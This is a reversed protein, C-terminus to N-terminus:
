NFKEIELYNQDVISLLDCNLFDQCKLLVNLVPMCLVDRNQLFVVVLQQSIQVFQRKIVVYSFLASVSSMMTRSMEQKRTTVLIM